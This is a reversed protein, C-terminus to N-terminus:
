FLKSINDSNMLPYFQLDVASFPNVLTSLEARGPLTLHM